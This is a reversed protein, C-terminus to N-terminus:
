FTLVSVPVDRLPRDRGPLRRHKILVIQHHAAPPNPASPPFSWIGVELCWLINFSWPKFPLRGWDRSCRFRQLAEALTALFVRRNWEDRFIPQGHNGRAMVHYVAGPYELRLSRAM